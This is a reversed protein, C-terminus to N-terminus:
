YKRVLDIHNAGMHVYEWGKPANLNLGIVVCDPCLGDFVWEDVPLECLDCLIMRSVPKSTGIWPAETKSQM